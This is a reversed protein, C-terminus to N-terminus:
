RAKKEHDKDPQHALLPIGSKASLLSAEIKEPSMMTRLKGAIAMIGSAVHEVAARNELTDPILSKSCDGFAWSRNFEGTPPWGDEIKTGGNERRYLRKGSKAVEVPSYTFTLGAGGDEDTMRTPSDITATVLIMKVWKFEVSDAVIATVDRQLDYLNERREYIKVGGSLEASASFTVTGKGASIRVEVPVSRKEAERYIFWKAIMKNGIPENSQKM